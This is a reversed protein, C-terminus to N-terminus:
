AKPSGANSSAALAKKMARQRQSIYIKLFLAIFLIIIGLMGIFTVPHGYILCSLMIAFGQRVTMIIVFVVAGYQSITYFIFLQGSASCISLIVADWVFEPHRVMFAASDIFGGQEILSVSTLLCSFMNVGAMMQISSMKYHTFLEGQWNSTFSDFLMYGILMILGSTTTVTDKHKTVDGSTLLFLSLGVSIMVATLYEHFQYTKKSVIKGMLMVPVVKSAKALVQTPFSVFKLAEYQCWSSMINSFSSFSYKYLPATHPPQAQLMIVILAMIFALIRNIFVLFQSDKFYEGDEETGFKITMIREQLVGWTLYSIQLGAFCVMLRMAQKSFSEDNKSSASSSKLGGEELSVHQEKGFVCLVLFNQICGPGAIENYKIKKLHKILLFGPVFITAYGLLNLALRFLWFDKWEAPEPEQGAQGLVLGFMISVLTLLRM